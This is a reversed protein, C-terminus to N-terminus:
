AGAALLQHAFILFVSSTWTYARDRLPDGNSANFNEAMGSKNVMRCFRRRVDQAFDKEEAADLGEAVIMTTPAWIPGRWYGDATFYKSKLSETAMGYPTLFRGEEKLGAILKARAAGPLRKGLLIPLFVELSDSDSAVIHDGSHPAVFGNERWSHKMLRELLQASRATWRRADAPRGLKRAVESLVEMQIILYASLDPGEMPAGVLMATSNDWGSDNGHNFQPIGDGDEDRYKFYWDTARCLPEYVEALRRRDIFASRKMMWDLVWGHIPPKSYAWTVGADNITDPFAGYPHQNDIPIMYQDWALQPDHEIMAMANFCNDWSWVNTMWNKSMLMAPRTLLKGNPAVVSSWNVYAALEAGPGFEAPVEPMKKLWGLYEDRVANVSADFGTTFPHPNWVSEFEEVAGEFSQSGSDPQFEFRRNQHILKGQIPALLFKDPRVNLEWRSEGNRYANGGSATLRLGCGQGRIRVSAPEAICIEVTGHAAELRLLSPTALETFPAPEGGDLVELLFYRRGGGHFAKLYLGDPASDTSLSAPTLHSFGMYSGFRSFPVSRIDFRIEGKYVYAAAKEAWAAAGWAAAGLPVNRLLERRNM